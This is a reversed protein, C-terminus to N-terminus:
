FIRSFFSAKLFLYFVVGIIMLFYIMCVSNKSSFKSHRRSTKITATNPIQGNLQEETFIVETGEAGVQEEAIIAENENISEYIVQFKLFKAFYLLSFRFFNLM